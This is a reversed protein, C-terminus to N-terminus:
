IDGGALSYVEKDDNGEEKRSHLTREKIFLAIQKASQLRKVCEGNWEGNELIVGGNEVGVIVIVNRGEALRGNLWVTQMPRLLRQANIRLTTVIGKGQLTTNQVASRPVKPIFKWEVWLDGGVGSYWSDAIGCRYPNCMKEYHISSHHDGSRLPLLRNIRQIFQTEPKQM